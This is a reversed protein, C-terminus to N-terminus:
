EDYSRADTEKVSREMEEEKGGASKNISFKLANGFGRRMGSIIRVIFSRALIGLRM